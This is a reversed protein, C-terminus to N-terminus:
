APPGPSLIVAAQHSTGAPDRWMVTTRDGPRRGKVAAGLDAVSHVPIAGVATIVDGGAIGASAAADGPTVTSIRAGDVGSADTVSVGLVGSHPGQIYPSSVGGLIQHAIALATTIPIADGVGGGTSASGAASGATDMGIVQQAANLLPGGSDGPQIPASFQILGNLTTFADSTEGSVTLTENLATIVGIASVPRGNVGLANGMGTVDDGTNLVGSVDLPVTPLGSAGELRIIAVDHTPDVGIVTAQYVPGAGAVQGTLGTTGAVVHNNTLVIGDSAIIMGTGAIRGEPVLGNINVVAAAVDTNGPSPSVAASVAPVPTPPPHNVRGLTVVAAFCVVAAIAFAAAGAMIGARGSM